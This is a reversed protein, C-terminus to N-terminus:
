AMGGVRSHRLLWAGANEKREDQRGYLCPFHQGHTPEETRAPSALPFVSRDDFAAV